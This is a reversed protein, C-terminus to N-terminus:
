RGPLAVLRTGGGWGHTKDRAQVRISRVGAPIQVGHLDRTFPQEGAHDHLLTRVGYVVSGDESTARFADAYREPSDYPSSVTVDLDFLGGGSARIHVDVVDPFQQGAAQAHRGLVALAGLLGVCGARLLLERRLMMTM